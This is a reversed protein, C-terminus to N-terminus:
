PLGGQLLGQRKGELVVAGLPVEIKDVSVGQQQVPLMRWGSDHWHDPIHEWAQHLLGMARHVAQQETGPRFKLHTATVGSCNMQLAAHFAVHLVVRRDSTM